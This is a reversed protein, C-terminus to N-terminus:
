IENASTSAAGDSTNGLVKNNGFSALVGSNNFVFGTLNGSVTSSGIRVTSAAGDSAVGNTGNNLAASRDIMMTIVAGGGPTTATMGAFSNGSAESGVISVRIGGTSGTGNAQFGYVNNQMVVNNLSVKASGSGTPKILIGGGNSGTGNSSVLTDNVYLESAASPAFNIGLGAGVTASGFGRIVCNQVHLAAGALFRIGNGGTGVGDITLGRLNVVDTALANVIIGSTNLTALVGAFNESADITISKTITVAGYTGPDLVNIIGGAATKSIAGAFTKCPATRSCPNVDDGVGSVWTRTAQAQAPASALVGAFFAGLVILPVTVKRM